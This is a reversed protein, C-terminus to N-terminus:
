AAVAELQDSDLLREVAILLIVGREDPLHAVQEIMRSQAGFMSPAPRISSRPLRKVESVFDVFFGVRTNNITFVIIRQRDVEKLPDLGFWRRSDIVPLIEGRLNVVGEVFDPSQPVRTIQDPRRVIEQVSSIPAGYAEAGLKFIVFQAEEEADRTEVDDTQMDEEDIHKKQAAGAAKAAEELACLQEMDLVSVVREGDDFLCISRIQSASAGGAIAEPKAALEEESTRLVERVHDAVLGVRLPGDETDMGAVVIKQTQAAANDPAGFIRRMSILPLLEGRLSAVGILTPDAGPAQAISPPMSVIERVSEIPLAYEQGAVDFSVLCVEDTDDGEQDQEDTDSAGGFEDAGAVDAREREIREAAVMELLKVANLIIHSKDRGAGPKVVGAMMESRMTAQIAEASEVEAPEVSVITSVHDVRLGTTEGNDFVLIRPAEDEEDCLIGLAQRVDIVPLVQGRLNALGILCSPSLPVSALAPERIIECVQALPLAFHEQGVRFLIYQELQGAADAASQEAKRESM